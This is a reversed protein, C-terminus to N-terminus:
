IRNGKQQTNQSINDKNPGPLWKSGQHRPSELTKDEKTDEIMKMLHSKIDSDQKKPTKPYGPSAITPSSPESSAM